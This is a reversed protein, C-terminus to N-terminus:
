SQHQNANGQKNVWQCPPQCKEPRCRKGFKYHYFCYKGDTKFRGASKSRDRNRPHSSQSRGRALFKIEKEMADIKNLLADFSFRDETKQSKVEEIAPPRMDWIKDGIEALKNLDGDSIVLISKIETPLKDLWFTKIIKDPVERSALNQMTRLLQSPKLDGLELDSVLKKLQREESEKFIGLLRDKALVYKNNDNSSVLDYINEVINLDLQALLFNFKTLDATVGSLAFQAEAQTFWIEPKEPWFPPLKVSVREVQLRDGGDM